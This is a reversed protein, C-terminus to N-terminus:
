AAIVDLKDFRGKLIPEAPAELWNELITAYVSRFDTTHRLNGNDLATLSPPEGYFGGKVKNGMLMMPGASGHDTGNQANERVRRGFESWTMILVKDGHGHGNIDQWFATMAESTQTLLQQLRAPQGTHTDFGGITVHGIRLPSTGGKGSDILEALLQLGSALSSRPYAVAPRYAAHAAQLDHSAQYANDLTTDLLAAFPTNAPKYVDYLRLLSRRRGDPDRDEHANQLAFTEISDISAIPAGRTEFASPLRRGVSLGALPHGLADTLGAFYRGLWGDGAANVPDASQWIDMAAFHSFNPEPYGVGEIVALRGQDFVDKLQALASHFAVRDDVPIMEDAAIALAGRNGRYAPDRYPIFTNLGDVGGAMQVVILTKGSVSASAREESALVVAQSFVSPVGIGLSVVALSEQLFNRRSIM